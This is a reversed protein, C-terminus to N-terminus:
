GQDRILDRAMLFKGDFPITDSGSLDDASDGDVGLQTFVNDVNAASVAHNTEAAITGAVHTGDCNLPANEMIEQGKM